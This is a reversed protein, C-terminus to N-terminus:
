VMTRSQALWWFIPNSYSAPANIASTIEACSGHQIARAIKMWEGSPNYFQIRSKFVPHTSLSEPRDKGELVDELDQQTPQRGEESAKLVAEYKAMLMWVAQPDRLDFCARATMILGIYDAEIECSRSKPLMYFVDIISKLYPSAQEKGFLTSVIINLMYALFTHGIAEATHQAIYHGIEHGLVLAIKNTDYRLLELLGTNVLILGGGTCSANPERSNVVRFRIKDLSIICGPMGADKEEAQLQAVFTDHARVLREVVGQVFLHQKSTTPLLAERVEDLLTEDMAAFFPQSLFDPIPRLRSRGTLPVTEIRSYLYGSIILTPFLVIPKLFLPRRMLRIRSILTHPFRNKQGRAMQQAAYEKMQEIRVPYPFRAQLPSRMWHLCRRASSQQKQLTLFPPSSSVSSRAAAHARRCLSSIAEM